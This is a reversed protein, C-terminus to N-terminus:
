NITGYEKIEVKADINIEAERYGKGWSVSHWYDNHKARVLNGLGVPDSGVKQLYDVTEGCKATLERSLAREIEEHHKELQNWGYEEVVGEFLLSIHILPKEGQIRTTIKKKVNTLLVAAGTKEHSGPVKVSRFIYETKPFEDRMALVLATQGTDLRGVMKDGAFVASGTVQVGKAASKLMPTIPDLGPAFCEIDFDYARTEPIYAFQRSGELMQNIYFAPRPKDELKYAHQILQRPSGDVVVVFALAPNAPDREYVELLEQIGKQALEASFLIQQVKGGELIRPSQLKWKERTERLLIGETSIIEVKKSSEAEVVPSSTTQLLKGDPASEVGIQLIFGTREYIREDWCGGSFLAFVMIVVILSKM